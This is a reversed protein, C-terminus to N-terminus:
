AEAPRLKLRVSTAAQCTGVALVDDVIGLEVLAGEAVHMAMPILAAAWACAAAIEVDPGKKDLIAEFAERATKAVDMARQQEDTLDPLFDRGRYAVRFARGGNTGLIIPVAWRRGTLDSVDAIDCWAQQRLLWRPELLGHLAAEWGDGIDRWARPNAPEDFLYSVGVGVIAGGSTDRQCLQVAPSETRWGELWPPVTAAHEGPRRYLIM